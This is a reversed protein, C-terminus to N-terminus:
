GFAKVNIGIGLCCVEEQRVLWGVKLGAAGDAWGFVQMESDDPLKLVVFL